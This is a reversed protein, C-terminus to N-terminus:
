FDSYKDEYEDLYDYAGYNDSNYEDDNDSDIYDSIYELEEEYEKWGPFKFMKEWTDYGYLEIFNNTRKEHLESLRRYINKVMEEDSPASKVLESSGEYRPQGKVILKRTIPDRKLLAWGKELNELDTDIKSNSNEDSEKIKEIFNMSSKQETTNASSILIPFDEKKFLEGKKPEKREEHLRTYENNKFSNYKKNLIKEEYIEDKIKNKQNQNQNQYQNKKNVTVDESLISFRSNPKFINDM